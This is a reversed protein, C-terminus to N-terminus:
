IVGSVPPNPAGIGCLSILALCSASSASLRLCSSSAEFGAGGGIGYRASLVPNDVVCRGGGGPLFSPASPLVGGGAETAALGFGGPRGGLNGGRCFELGAGETGEGGGVYPAAVDPASGCLPM